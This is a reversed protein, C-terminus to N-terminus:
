FPVGDESVVTPKVAGLEKSMLLKEQLWKPLNPFEGGQKQEIEYSVLNNVREPVVMGKPM